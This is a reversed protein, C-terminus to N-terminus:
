PTLHLRTPFEAAVTEIRLPLRIYRGALWLPVQDLFGESNLWGDQGGLIVFHNADPDSLDSIHRANAGYTTRHRGSSTAHATKMLSDSTGGIPWDAFRYRRGVVPLFALPHQLVLRHMDGWVPYRARQAAASVLSQKLLPALTAADASVIERILMDKM